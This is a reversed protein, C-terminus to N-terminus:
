RPPEMETWTLEILNSLSHGAGRSGVERHGLGSGWHVQFDEVGNPPHKSPWPKSNTRLITQIDWCERQDKETNTATYLNLKSHQTALILYPSHEKKLRNTPPGRERDQPLGWKSFNTYKINFQKRNIKATIKLLPDGCIFAITPFMTRPFTHTQQHPSEAQTLACTGM